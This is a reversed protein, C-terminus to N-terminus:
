HTKIIKAPSGVATVNAPIDKIVVAGAGIISNEGIEIKPIIITGTGLFAGKKLKVNGSTHCGPSINAYDEMINDHDVSASHNIITNNGITTGPAIIAGAAIVNGKGLKVGKAIISTPHTINPFELQSKVKEFIEARVKNDGIAIVAAEAEINKIEELNGLVPIGEVQKLEPNDDIFGLLEHKAEARVIDSVVKGHGGAGIIVIKVKEDFSRSNDFRKIHPHRHM